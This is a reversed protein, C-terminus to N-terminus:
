KDAPCANMQHVAQDGSNNPTNHQVERKGQPEDFDIEVCSTSHSYPICFGELFRCSGFKRFTDSECKLLVKVVKKGELDTIAFVKVFVGSVLTKHM